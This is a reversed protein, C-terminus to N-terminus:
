RKTKANARRRVVPVERPVGEAMIEDYGAPARDEDDEDMQSAPAPLNKEKEAPRPPAPQEYQKAFETPLQKWGDDEEGMAGSEEATDVDETPAMTHEWLDLEAEDTEAPPAPAAADRAGDENESDTCYVVENLRKPAKCSLLYREVLGGIDDLLADADDLSMREGDSAIGEITNELVAPNLLKLNLIQLEEAESLRMRSGDAQKYKSATYRLAKLFMEARARPIHREGKLAQSKLLKKEFDFLSQSPLIQEERRKTQWEEFAKYVECNALQCVTAELVQM